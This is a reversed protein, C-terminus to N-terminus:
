TTPSLNSSMVGGRSYLSVLESHRAALSPQVATVHSSPLKDVMMTPSQVTECVSGELDM